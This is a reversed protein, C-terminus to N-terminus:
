GCCSPKALAAFDVGIMQSIITNLKIAADIMAHQASFFDHLMANGQLELDAEDAGMQQLRDLLDLAAQDKQLKESLAAFASFEDSKKFKEALDAAAEVATMKEQEGSM